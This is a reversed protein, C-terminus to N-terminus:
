EDMDMLERELKLQELRNKKMDKKRDRQAQDEASSAATISGSQLQAKDQQTQSKKRAGLLEVEDEESKIITATPRHGDKEVYSPARAKAAAATMTSAPNSDDRANEAKSPPSIRQRKSSPESTQDEAIMNTKALKPPLDEDDDELGGHTANFPFGANGNCGRIVAATSSSPLAASTTPEIINLLKLFETCFFRLIAFLRRIPPLSVQLDVGSSSASRIEQLAKQKRSRSSTSLHSANPSRYM